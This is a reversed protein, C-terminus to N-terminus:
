QARIWVNHNSALARKAFVLNAGKLLFSNLRSYVKVTMLAFVLTWRWISSRSGRKTRVSSITMSRTLSSPASRWSGESLDHTSKITLAPSVSLRLEPVDDSLGRLTSPEPSQGRTGAGRTAKLTRTASYKRVM